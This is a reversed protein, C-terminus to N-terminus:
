IEENVFDGRLKRYRKRAEATYLSSPYDQMLKQYLQMANDPNNFQKETLDALLFM